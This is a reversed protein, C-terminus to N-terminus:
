IHILSLFLSMTAQCMVYGSDPVNTSDIALFHLYGNVLEVGDRDILQTIGVGREVYVASDAMLAHNAHAACPASTLLTRPSIESDGGVTIGLYRDDGTFVSDPLATQSGLVVSFLGDNVQVTAHSETWKSAGVGDYIIFTM